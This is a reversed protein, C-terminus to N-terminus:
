QLRLPKSHKQPRLLGFLRMKKLLNILPKSILGYNKIFKRYYGTLELFGRLEKVSKPIPWTQMASIKHPYTSVEQTSIVHGLYEVQIVGFECKSM